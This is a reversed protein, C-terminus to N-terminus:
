LWLNVKEFEVINQSQPVPLLRDGRSLIVGGRTAGFAKKPCWVGSPM